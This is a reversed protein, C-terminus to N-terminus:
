VQVAADLLHEWDGEKYDGVESRVIRTGDNEGLAQYLMEHTARDRVYVIFSTPSLVVWNAIFDGGGPIRPDFIKRQYSGESVM